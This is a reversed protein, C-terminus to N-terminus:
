CSPPMAHVALEELPNADGSSPQRWVEHLVTTSHCASAPWPQPHGRSVIIRPILKLPMYLGGSAKMQPHGMQIESLMTIHPIPRRCWPDELVRASLFINYLWQSPCRRSEDVDQSESQAALTSRAAWSKRMLQRLNCGRCSSWVLRKTRRSWRMIWNNSCVFPLDRLLFFTAFVEPM